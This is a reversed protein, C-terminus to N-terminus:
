SSTWYSVATYHLYINAAKNATLNIYNTQIGECGGAEEYVSCATLHQLLSPMKDEDYQLALLM